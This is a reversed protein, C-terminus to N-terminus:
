QKEEKHESTKLEALLYRVYASGINSFMCAESDFTEPLLFLKGVGDEILKYNVGNHEFQDLQM